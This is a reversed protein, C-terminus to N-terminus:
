KAASEPMIVKLMQSNKRWLITGIMVLHIILVHKVILAATQGHEVATQWEFGKFYMARPVGGIFIWVLAFRAFWEIARRVRQFYEALAPTPDAPYRNILLRMAIASAALLATAVDHFYNSMMILVGLGHSIPDM